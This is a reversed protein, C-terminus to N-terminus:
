AEDEPPATGSSPPKVAEPGLTRCLQAERTQVLEDWHKAIELLQERQQGVPLHRALKRCEEAHQRYELATKM